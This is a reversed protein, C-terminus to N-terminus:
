GNGGLFHGFASLTHIRDCVIKTIALMPVALIAGPVNWMWYWFVISFIVIVPNLTFRRGLDACGHRHRGAPEHRSPFKQGIQANLFSNLL